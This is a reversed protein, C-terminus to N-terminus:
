GIALALGEEALLALLGLTIFDWWHPQVTSLLFRHYRTQCNFPCGKLNPPQSGVPLSKPALSTYSQGAGTRVSFNCSASSPIDVSHM